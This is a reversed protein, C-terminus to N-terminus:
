DLNINYYVKTDTVTGDETTYYYYEGNEDAENILEQQEEETLKGEDEEDLEIANEESTEYIDESILELLDTINEINSKYYRENVYLFSSQYSYEEDIEIDNYTGKASITVEYREFLGDNEYFAVDEIKLEIDSNDYFYNLLEYFDDKAYTEEEEVNELMENAEEYMEEAGDEDTYEPYKKAFQKYDELLICLDDYFDEFLEYEYEYEEEDYFPFTEGYSYLYYALYIKSDLSKTLFEDCKDDNIADVFEELLKEASSYGKDNNTIKDVISYGDSQKRTILFIVLIILIVVLILFLIKQKQNLKSIIDKM